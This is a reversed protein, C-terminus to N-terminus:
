QDDNNESRDDNMVCDMTYDILGKYHPNKKIESVVASKFHGSETLAVAFAHAYKHSPVKGKIVVKEDGFQRLNTICINESSREVITDLIHFWDFYKNSSLAGLMFDKRCDIDTTQRDIQKERNSLQSVEGIVISQKANEVRTDTKSFQVGMLNSSILAITFMAAAISIGAFALKKVAKINRVREPLLDLKIKMKTEECQGMALGVAAISTKEISKGARVSTHSGTQQPSCIHVDASASDFLESVEDFDAVAPDTEVVMQWKSDEFPAIEIDYFKKVSDVEDRFFALYEKKGLALPVETNRIFDLVGKRFVCVTVSSSDSRALLVNGDYNTMMYKEYLARMWAIMVPEVALPEIRATDLAILLASLKEDEVAAVMTRTTGNIGIDGLGHYDYQHQRGAIIASFKIESQVFQAINEPLEVPMDIIQILSPNALLSISASCKRIGHRGLLKKLCKGLEVPAAINGAKILGEPISASGAKILRTRDGHCSLLAFSITSESIDIGLSTKTSLM